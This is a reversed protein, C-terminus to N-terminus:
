ARRSRALQSGICAHVGKGFALHPNPARTIDIEDPREFKEPDRNAASIVLHVRDGENIRKGHLEYAHAARRIILKERVARLPADGRGRRRHPRGPGGQPLRVAGPEPRADLPRVLATRDDDGEHGGFLMLACMSKMEAHTLVNGSGDGELLGSIMDEGPTKRAQGIREDFYDLM